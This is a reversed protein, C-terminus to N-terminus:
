WFFVDLYLESSNVVSCSAIAGAIVSAHIHVRVDGLRKQSEFRVHEDAVYDFGRRSKKSLSVFAFLKIHQNKELCNPILVSVMVEKLSM